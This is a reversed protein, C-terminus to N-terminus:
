AGGKGSLLHELYMRSSAEVTHNASAERLTEPPLPQELTRVMAEALGKFDGVAVLKGYKGDQLIEKPGSRCDTSVVPTGLALSETLVNPSGEWKSSLVFLSSATIWAYPNPEFGPLFVDNNLGLSSILDKLQERQRGEGLIVLKCASRERVLAFARILTTFDKQETLRGVGLITPENSDTFWPHNVAERSKEMLEDSIVPNAVTTVRSPPMGTISKIDACVGDSVAVIHDTHPYFLRMGTYWAWKRLPGKGSIAESVTTGIRGVLRGEFGSLRRAMVAVKIGRDKAALLADPKEIKLYRVLEPLSSLTHKKGLRIQNVGEPIFELHEGRARAIVMDVRCGAELLGRALNTVMREVGGRGSFSIFIAIHPRNEAM